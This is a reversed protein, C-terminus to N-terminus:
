GDVFDLTLLLRRNDNPLQPSRHVLGAGENGQWIAINTDSQYIDTLVAPASSSAAQRSQSPQARVEAATAVANM